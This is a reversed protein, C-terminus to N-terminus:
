GIRRHYKLQEVKGSKNLYYVSKLKYLSILQKCQECPCSYVLNGNYNVGITYLTAGKIEDPKFRSLVGLESHWGRDGYFAYRLKGPRDNRNYAIALIRGSKVLISVHKYHHSRSKTVIKMCFKLWKEHRM